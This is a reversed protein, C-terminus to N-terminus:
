PTVMKVVRSRSAATTVNEASDTRRYYSLKPFGQRISLESKTQLYMKMISPDLVYIFTVPAFSVDQWGCTETVAHSCRLSPLDMETMRVPAQTHLGKCVSAPSHNPLRQTVFVIRHSPPPPGLPSCLTLFYTLWNICRARQWDASCSVTALYIRKSHEDVITRTYYLRTQSDTYRTRPNHKGNFPLKKTWCTQLGTMQKAPPYQSFRYYFWFCAALPLVM